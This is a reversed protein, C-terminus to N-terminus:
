EHIVGRFPLKAAQEVKGMKLKLRAEGALYISVKGAQQAEFFRKQYAPDLPTVLPISLGQPPILGEGETTYYSGLFKAAPCVLVQQGSMGGLSVEYDSLCLRYGIGELAVKEGNPNELLLVFRVRVAEDLNSVLQTNQVSLKISRLSEIFRLYNTETSFLSFSMLATIIILLSWAARRRMM